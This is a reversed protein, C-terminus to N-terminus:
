KVKKLEVKADIEVEQGIVLGGTELTSNYKLGFEYRDITGSLKFGARTNGWPDKVIGGFKVNLEVPKTVGHMTLNGKLIYNEDDVKQFETSIFTIKPYKEADFFDPSKLHKDREENNTNISNIEISVNIKANEFNEGATITASYNNFRGEVESIVMHSITFGIKSHAADITWNNQAWLSATFLIGVLFTSLKKM